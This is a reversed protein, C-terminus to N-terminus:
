VKEGYEIELILRCYHMAKKVDEAGNKTRHRSIYKVVNGDQFNMKNQIIYDIPQIKLSKYHEGGVQTDKASM